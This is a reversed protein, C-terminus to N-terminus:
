ETPDGQYFAAAYDTDAAYGFRQFVDAQAFPTQTAQSFQTKHYLILENELEQKDTIRHPHNDKTM